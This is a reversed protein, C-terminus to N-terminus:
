QGACIADLIKEPRSAAPKIWHTSAAITARCMIITASRRRKHSLSTRYFFELLM